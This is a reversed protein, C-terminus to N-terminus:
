IGGGEAEIDSAGFHEGRAAAGLVDVLRSFAMNAAVRGGLRLAAGGLRPMSAGVVYGVGAAVGLTVYPREELQEVLAARAERVAQEAATLAEEASQRARRGEEMVRRAHGDGGMGEERGM